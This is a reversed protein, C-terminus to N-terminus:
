CHWDGVGESWKFDISVDPFGIGMLPEDFYVSKKVVVHHLTLNEGGYVAIFCNKIHNNRVQLGKPFCM